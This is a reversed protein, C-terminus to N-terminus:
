LVACHHPALPRSHAPLASHACLGSVYHELGVTEDRLFSQSPAGVSATINYQLIYQRVVSTCYLTFYYLVIKYFVISYTHVLPLPWLKLSCEKRIYM